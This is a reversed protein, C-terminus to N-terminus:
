QGRETSKVGLLSAGSDLDQVVAGCQRELTSDTSDRDRTDIGLMYELSRIMYHM